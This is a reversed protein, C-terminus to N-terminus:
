HRAQAGYSDEAKLRPLIDIGLQAFDRHLSVPLQQIVNGFGQARSRQALDSDLLVLRGGPVDGCM